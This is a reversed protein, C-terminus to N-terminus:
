EIIGGGLVINNDYFVASQGPAPAWEPEDFEVIIMGNGEPHLTAPKEITTSRIKVGARTIDKINETITVM